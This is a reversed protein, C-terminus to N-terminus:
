VIRHDLLSIHYSIIVVVLGIVMEGYSIIVTNDFIRRINYM